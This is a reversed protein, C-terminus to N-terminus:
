EVEMRHQWWVGSGLTIRYEQMKDQVLPPSGVSHPPPAFINRIISSIFYFLIAELADRSM